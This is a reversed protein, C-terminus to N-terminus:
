WTYESEDMSSSPAPPSNLFGQEVRVEVTEIVPAEYVGIKGMSRDSNIKNKKKM